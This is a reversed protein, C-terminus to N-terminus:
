ENKENEVGKDLMTRNDSKGSLRKIIHEVFKYLWGTCVVLGGVINILRVLFQVFPMREDTITLRIPEIDYKFFIGPVLRSITSVQSVQEKVAYQYTDVTRGTTFSKYTTPVVSMFYQFIDMSSDAIAKTDDLPNVIRPYFEGFSFEDIVHTFNLSSPDIARRDFYGYGKATIHFDGRVRNVPISGFIRCAAGDPDEKRLKKFKSRRARKLVSYFSDYNKEESIKHAHSLDLATVGQFNLLESAILRDQSADYVNATLGWCPLNVTVDINIQLDRKVDSDVSFQQEEVGGIYTALQVWMLFTCVIGLVLTVAGGRTSKVSYTSSVKPFADFTKLGSPVFDDM